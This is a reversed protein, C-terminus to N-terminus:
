TSHTQSHTSATTKLQLLTIAPLIVGLATDTSTFNITGTYGTVTQESADKATVTVTFLSGATVSAPASITLHTATQAGYAGTITGAANVTLNGSQDSQSLGSTSSWYYMTQTPNSSSTVNAAYAWSVTSGSNIWDTTFPLDTRTKAEGAVTVITGSGDTLLNSGSATFTM